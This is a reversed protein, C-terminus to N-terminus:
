LMKASVSLRAEVVKGTVPSTYQEGRKRKAKAVARKWLNLNRPLKRPRQPTTNSLGNSSSGNGATRLTLAVTAEICLRSPGPPQDATAMAVTGFLFSNSDNM